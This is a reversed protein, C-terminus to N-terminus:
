QSVIAWLGLFSRGCFCVIWMLTLLDERKSPGRNVGELAGGHSVVRWLLSVEFKLQKKSGPGPDSVKEMRKEDGSGLSDTKEPPLAVAPLCLSFPPFDLDPHSHGTRLGLTGPGEQGAEQGHEMDKSEKAGIIGCAAGSFAETTCGCWNSLNGQLRESEWETGVKCGPIADRLSLVQDPCSAM